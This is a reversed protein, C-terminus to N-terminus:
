IEKGTKKSIRIKKGDKIEYGVRTPKKTKPDVLMVNSADIAAEKTLIQGEVGGQPKVHKTVMNLNEVIVKNKTKLVSSVIGEKGKDKGSIIVVNDGKKLYM